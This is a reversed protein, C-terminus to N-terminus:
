NKIIRYFEKSGQSSLTLLYVGSAFDGTNVLHKNSNYLEARYMLGGTLDSIEIQCDAVVKGFDIQVFDDAPNPFISVDFQKSSNEIGINVIAICDSTDVCDNMTIEVAYNGDKTVTYTRSTAGSIAAYSNTCDLWRYGDANNQDATLDMGSRTVNSDIITIDLAQELIINCGSIPNVITDFYTGSTTYTHGGISVFPGCSKYSFNTRVTQGLSLNVKILSDCSNANIFTDVYAGASYLWFNGSLSLASDCGGAQTARSSSLGPTLSAGTVWNSTAGSLSFNTLTGDNGKADYLKNKGNNTGGAINQNFNYYAVLNAPLTCYETNRNNAIETQTRAVNWVRVEDIDGMFNNVGDIRRGITIPSTSATNVTVTFNQSIDLVGDVYLSAKTVAADDYTVAVHHWNGDAVTATSVFGNGGVEIRLKGFNIMNLTFRGGTATSGWDVIVQQTSISNSSRIWAEVTRNTTGTPGANSAVIYDDVGDFNIANQAHISCAVITLSLLLLKKM